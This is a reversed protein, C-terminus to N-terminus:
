LTIGLLTIGLLTIKHCSWNIKPDRSMDLIANRKCFLKLPTVSDSDTFAMKYM